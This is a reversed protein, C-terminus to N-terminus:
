VRYLYFWTQILIWTTKHIMYFFRYFKFFLMRARMTKHFTYFNFILVATTRNVMVFRYTGVGTSVLRVFNYSCNEFFRSKKLLESKKTEFRFGEFTLKHLKVIRDLTDQAWIVSKVVDAVNLKGLSKFWFEIQEDWWNWCYAVSCVLWITGGYYISNWIPLQNM